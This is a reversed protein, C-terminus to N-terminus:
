VERGWREGEWEEGGEGLGEVVEREEVEEWEWWEWDWGCAWCVVVFPISM